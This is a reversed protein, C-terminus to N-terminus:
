LLDGHRQFSVLSGSLHIKSFTVIIPRHFIFNFLHPNNNGHLCSAAVGSPISRDKSLKSFRSDNVAVWNVACM